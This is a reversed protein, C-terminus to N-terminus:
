YKAATSGNPLTKFCVAVHCYRANDLVLTIPVGLPLAALKHLLECISKAHIYNSNVVTVAERPPLLMSRASYTSVSDAAPRRSRGVRLRETSNQRLSRPRASRRPKALNSPGPSQPTCNIKMSVFNILIVDLSRHLRQSRLWRCPSM